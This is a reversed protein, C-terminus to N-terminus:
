VCEASRAPVAEVAKSRPQAKMFELNYPACSQSRMFELDYHDSHEQLTEAYLRRSSLTRLPRELLPPAEVLAAILLEISRPASLMELQYPGSPLYQLM